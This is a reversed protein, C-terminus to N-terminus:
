ASPSGDNKEKEPSEKVEENAQGASKKKKGALSGLISLVIVFAVIVGCWIMGPTTKVYSALAGLMPICFVPKGVLQSFSVPSGDVADNNDGKTVFAQAAPDIAVVRHTAITEGSGITFTIPDGVKIATAEADVVYVVSGVPYAPEMSPSLVGYIQVGFWKPVVLVGAVLIVLVLIVTVCANCIKSIM